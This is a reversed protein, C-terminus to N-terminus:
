RAKLGRRASRYGLWGAVLLVTSVARAVYPGGSGNVGGILLAVAWVVTGVVMLAIGVRVGLVGTWFRSVGEGRTQM